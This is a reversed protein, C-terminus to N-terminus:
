RALICRILRLRAMSAVNQRTAWFRAASLRTSPPALSRGQFPPPPSIGAATSVLTSSAAIVLVGPPTTSKSKGPLGPQIKGWFASEVLFIAASAVRVEGFMKVLPM